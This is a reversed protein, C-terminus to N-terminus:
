NYSIIMYGALVWVRFILIGTDEYGSDDDLLLSSVKM